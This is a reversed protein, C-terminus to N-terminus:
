EGSVWPLPPTLVPPNMQDTIQQILVSETLVKDVGNSWIWGLVQEKTLQDYPTFTEDTPSPVTCSSYTSATYTDQIGSCIWHINFVVNKQNNDQPYCDM